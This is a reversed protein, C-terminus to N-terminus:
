AARVQVRSLRLIAAYSKDNWTKTVVFALCPTATMISMTANMMVYKMKPVMPYKTERRMLFDSVTVVNMASSTRVITACAIKGSVRIM